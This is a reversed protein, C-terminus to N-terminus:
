GPVRAAMFDLQMGEAHSNKMRANDGTVAGAFEAM